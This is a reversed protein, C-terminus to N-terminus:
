KVLRGVNYKKDLPKFNEGKDKYKNQRVAGSCAGSPDMIPPPRLSFSNFPLAVPNFMTLYPCVYFTSLCWGKVIFSAIWTLTPPKMTKTKHSLETNENKHACLHIHLIILSSDGTIGQFRVYHRLFLM